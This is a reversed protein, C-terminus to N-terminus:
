VQNNEREPQIMSKSKSGVKGISKAMVQIMERMM